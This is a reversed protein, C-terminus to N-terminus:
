ISPSNNNYICLKCKLTTLSIISSPYPNSFNKSVVNFTLFFKMNDWQFNFTNKLVVVGLTNKIQKLYVSKVVSM